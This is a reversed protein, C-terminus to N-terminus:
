EPVERARESRGPERDTQDATCWFGGLSPSSHQHPDHDARNACLGNPLAPMERDLLNLLPETGTVQEQHADLLEAVARAVERWRERNGEAVEGWPMRRCADEGLWAQRAAQAAADIVREGAM